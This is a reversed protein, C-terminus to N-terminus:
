IWVMPQYVAADQQFPNSYLDSLESLYDAACFQALGKNRMVARDADEEADRVAHGFEEAAENLQELEKGFPHTAPATPAPADKNFM